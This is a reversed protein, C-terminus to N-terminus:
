RVWRDCDEISLRQKSTMGDLMAQRADSPADPILAIVLHGINERTSNIEKAQAVRYLCLSHSTEKIAKDAHEARAAVLLLGALTAVLVAYLQYQLPVRIHPFHAGATTAPRAEDGM